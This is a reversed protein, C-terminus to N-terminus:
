ADLGVKLKSFNANRPYSDTDMNGPWACIALVANLECNFM